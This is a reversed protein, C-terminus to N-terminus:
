QENILQVFQNVFTAAAAETNSPIIYEVEKDGNNFEVIMIHKDHSISTKIRVKKISSARVYLNSGPLKILKM